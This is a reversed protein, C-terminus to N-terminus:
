AQAKLWAQVNTFAGLEDVANTYFFLTDHPFQERVWAWTYEPSQSRWGVDPDIGATWEDYVCGELNDTFMIGLPGNNPDQDIDTRQRVQTIQLDADLEVIWEGRSM